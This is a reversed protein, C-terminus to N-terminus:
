QNYLQAQTQQTSTFTPSHFNSFFFFGYPLFFFPAVVKVNWTWRAWWQHLHFSAVSHLNLFIGQISCQVWSRQIVLRARKGSIWHFELSTFPVIHYKDYVAPAPYYIFNERKLTHVQMGKLGHLDAGAVICCIFKSQNLCSANSSWYVIPLM